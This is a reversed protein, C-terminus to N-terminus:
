DMTQTHGVYQTTGTQLVSGVKLDKSQWENQLYIKVTATIETDSGPTSEKAASKHWCEEKTVNRSM